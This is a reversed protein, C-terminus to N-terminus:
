CSGFRIVELVAVHRHVGAQQVATTQCSSSSSNWQQLAIASGGKSGLTPNSFQELHCLIWLICNTKTSNRATYSAEWLVLHFLTKKVNVKFPLAEGSSKKTKNTSFHCPFGSFEVQLSCVSVRVPRYHKVASLICTSWKERQLTIPAMLLKSSNRLAKLQGVFEVIFRPASDQRSHYIDRGPRRDLPTQLTFQQM